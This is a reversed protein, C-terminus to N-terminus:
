RREARENRCQKVLEYALNLMEPEETYKMLLRYELSGEVSIESIMDKTIECSLGSDFVEFKLFKEGAKAYIEQRSDFDEEVATGGIVARVSTKDREYGNLAEALKEALREGHAISIERKVFSIVGTRVREARISSGDLDIIFASGEAGDAIDTQQPTGANFIRCGSMEKRDPYPVHTHGILWLDMGCKDLEDLTMYYYKKERDCSLGEIAGHAVGIYYRGDPQREFNKLWGLANTESYRDTCICPCFVADGLDYPENKTFLVTNGAAHKRFELWIDNDAEDFYDHNGPLVLVTGSFEELIRCVEAQLSESILKRGDYTDGTVVFYRCGRDNAIRVSNKLAELRAASYAAAASSNDEGKYSRGIHLDGTEFIKLM